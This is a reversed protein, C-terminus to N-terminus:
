GVLRQIGVLQGDDILIERRRAFGQISHTCENGGVGGDIQGCVRRQAIFVELRQANDVQGIWRGGDGHAFEDVLRGRIFIDAAHAAIHIARGLM